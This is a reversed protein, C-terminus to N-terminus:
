RAKEGEAAWIERIREIDTGHSDAYAEARRRIRALHAELNGDTLRIGFPQGNQGGSEDFITSLVRDGLESRYHSSEWYYTMLRESGMPPVPECTPPSYDAFDWLPVPPKGARAAEERLIRVLNGKWDEFMAWLGAARIIEWQWAHSPSIVSILEIDHEYALRVMSRFYAFTDEVEDPNPLLPSVSEAYYFSFAKYPRPLYGFGYYTRVNNEFAGRNGGASLIETRIDGDVRRGAPTLMEFRDQQQYTAYSIRIMDMSPLNRYKLWLYEIVGNRDGNRKVALLPDMDGLGDRSYINFSFFDLGAVARTVEGVADAHVFYRYMEYINAGSLAANYCDGYKDPEWGPHNPDLGYESRSTGLIIQAPQHEYIHMAKLFRSNKHARSKIANLGKIRPAGYIGYPDMLWNFAIALGLLTLVAVITGLALRRFRGLQTTHEVM